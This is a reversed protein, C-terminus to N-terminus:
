MILKLYFLDIRFIMKITSLRVLSKFLNIFANVVCRQLILVSVTSAIHGSELLFFVIVVVCGLGMIILADFVVFATGEQRTKSNKCKFM